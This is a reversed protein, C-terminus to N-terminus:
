IAIQTIAAAKGIQALTKNSSQALTAITAYTAKRNELNKQDTVLQKQEENLRYIEQQAALKKQADVTNKFINEQAKIRAQLQVRARNEESAELLQLDIQQQEIQRALAASAEEAEFNARVEKKRANSEVIMQEEKKLNEQKSALFAEDVEKLRTFTDNYAQPILTGFEKIGGKVIDLAQMFKGELLKSVAEISNGLLISIVKSLGDFIGAVIVGGQTLVKISYIFADIIPTTTATDRGLALIKTAFLTIVPALREGITEFLDSVVNRVLTLSGLGETAAKAQGGFRAGLQDLVEALKQSQSANASIEVGNRALANTNTGITKGVLEAATALDIKKATALDLTAQTLEKSVKTQGLYSQLIGEASIIQEDGYISVQQLASAQELYADALEKSYVGNNVMARTLSNTAEEQERYDDIAKLVVASIAAFAAVGLEKIADFSEQLKELQEAGATKIKLLLEAVKSDAV